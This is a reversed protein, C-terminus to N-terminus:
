TAISSLSSRREEEKMGGEEINDCRLISCTLVVAHTGRGMQRESYLYTIEDKEDKM